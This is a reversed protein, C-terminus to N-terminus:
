WAEGAIQKFWALFGFSASDLGFEADQLLYAPDAIRVPVHRQRIAEFRQIRIGAWGSCQNWDMTFM